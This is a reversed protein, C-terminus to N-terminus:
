KSARMLMATPRFYNKASVKIRRWLKVIFVFDFCVAYEELPKFSETQPITLPLKCFVTRLCETM